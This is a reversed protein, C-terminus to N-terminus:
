IINFENKIKCPNVIWKGKSRYYKILNKCKKQRARVHTAMVKKMKIRIVVNLMIMIIQVYKYVNV